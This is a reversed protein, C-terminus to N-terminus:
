SLKGVVITFLRNLYSLYGEFFLKETDIKYIMRHTIMYDQLLTNHHGLLLSINNYLLQIRTCRKQMEEKGEFSSCFSYFKEQSNKFLLNSEMSKKDESSFLHAYYMSFLESIVRKFVFPQRLSKKIFTIAALYGENYFDISELCHYEELLLRNLESFLSKNKNLLLCIAKEQNFLEARCDNLKESQEHSYVLPKFATVNNKM